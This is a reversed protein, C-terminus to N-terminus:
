AVMSQVRQFWSVRITGAIIWEGALHRGTERENMTDNQGSSNQRPRLLIWKEEEPIPTLPYM